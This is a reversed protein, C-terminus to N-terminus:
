PINSFSYAVLFIVSLIHLLFFCQFFLSFYLFKRRPGYRKRDTPPPPPPFAFNECLHPLLPANGRVVAFPQTLSHPSPLKIDHRDEVDEFTVSSSSMEERYPIVNESHQTM